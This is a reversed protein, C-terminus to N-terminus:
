RKRVNYAFGGKPASMICVKAGKRPHNTFIYKDLYISGNKISDSFITYHIKFKFILDEQINSHYILKSFDKTYMFIAKSKSGSIDNVVKLINLNFEPHLLFYQELSLEQNDKYNEILPIVTLTFAGLGEKKLLPIFKGIDAHSGRFYGILRRALRYSSGVYKDGTVVHTWIYVGACTVEKRTTGIHRLFKSSKIININLNSFQIRPRSLIEDLLNQSIFVGLNKLIKNVEKSTIVKGSKIFNIALNYPSNGCSSKKNLILSWDRKM